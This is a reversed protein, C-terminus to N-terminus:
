KINLSHHEELHAGKVKGLKLDQKILTKDVTVIVKQKKYKSDVEGDSIIVRSSKRLSITFLDSEIKKTNTDIMALRLYEDLQKVGKEIANQRAKLRKIEINISDIDSQKNQHIKVINVAKEKLSISFSDLIEALQGQDLDMDIIKNYTEVIEYLKM